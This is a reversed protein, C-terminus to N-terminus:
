ILDKLCGHEVHFLKKSPWQQLDIQSPEIATLFLQVQMTSLISLIIERHKRDLEAALDDYLLVCTQKNADTFHQAQSIRLLAVLMKQQGRSIGTQASQGNVSISIDARQPGYCTYGKRKDREIQKTLIDQLTEQEPWGRRYEISVKDHAFLSDTFKKFYPQLNKIYQKRYQDIREACSVLEKDWIQCFASTQQMKLAANRQTLAKRFFQWCEFFGHEVHFVGWDMYQRRQGPGATILKYSDPHIALVPFQSAIESVKKIVKRNVRINTKKRSRRLGLSIEGPNVHEANAFIQLFNKDRQILDSVHQTRFSRVHSLYFISELISTKGATNDGTILNVCHDPSFHIDEINRFNQIQLRTLRM